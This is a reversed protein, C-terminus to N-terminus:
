YAGRGTLVAPITKLIIKLDTWFGRDEIYKCDLRVWENFSLDSRGSIQWYCTLGPKVSLRQMQYPTYQKVENLLPPRPGVISMQGKIINILQPLEDISKKRIIRGVRTVRPDNSLKFVPGDRENLSKLSELREDADICMSRFKYMKFVKGDKGARPQSYLVPGQSDLKIAIATIIMLPSLVILALVSLVLDLIRKCFNYIILEKEQFDAKEVKINPYSVYTDKQPTYQDLVNM